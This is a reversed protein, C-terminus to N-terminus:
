SMFVFIVSKCVILKYYDIFLSESWWRVSVFISVITIFLYFVFFLFVPLFPFATVLIGDSTNVEIFLNNEIIFNRRKDDPCFRGGIILFAFVDTMIILTAEKAVFWVVFSM